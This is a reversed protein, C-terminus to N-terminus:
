NKGRARLNFHRQHRGPRRRQGKPHRMCRLGADAVERTELNLRIGKPTDLEVADVRRGSLLMQAAAKAAAAACSGTTYGCRMEKGQSFTYEEM